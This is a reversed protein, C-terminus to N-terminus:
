YGCWSHCNYSINKNYVQEKLKQRLAEAESDSIPVESNMRELKEEEFTIRQTALESKKKDLEM